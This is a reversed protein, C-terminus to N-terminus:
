GPRFCYQLKKRDRDDWLKMFSERRLKQYATSPFIEGDGLNPVSIRNNSMREVAGKKSVFCRLSPIAIQESNQIIRKVTQSFLQIAIFNPHRYWDTREVFSQGLIQQVSPLKWVTNIYHWSIKEWPHINSWKGVTSYCSIEIGRWYRLPISCGVMNRWNEDM